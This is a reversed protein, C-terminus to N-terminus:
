NSNNCQVELFIHNMIAALKVDLGTVENNADHTSLEVAVKNYMNKWTPHHNMAECHPAVENMFQLAQLFTPFEFTRRIYRQHSTSMAWGPLSLNLIQSLKPTSIPYHVPVASPVVPSAAYRLTFALAARFAM